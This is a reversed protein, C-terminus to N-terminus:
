SSVEYCGVHIDNWKIINDVNSILEKTLGEFVGISNWISNFTRIQGLLKDLGNEKIGKWGASLWQKTDNTSILKLIISKCRQWQIVKSLHKGEKDPNM